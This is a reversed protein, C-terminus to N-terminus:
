LKGQKKNVDLHIFDLKPIQCNYNQWEDRISGVMIDVDASAGDFILKGYYDTILWHDASPQFLRARLKKKPLGLNPIM